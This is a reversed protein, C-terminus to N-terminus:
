HPLELENITSKVKTIIVTFIIFLINSSYYTHAYKIVRYSVNSNVVHRIKHSVYATLEFAGYFCYTYCKLCVAALVHLILTFVLHFAFPFDLV